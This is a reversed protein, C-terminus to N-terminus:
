FVSFRDGKFFVGQVSFCVWRKSFAVKEQFLLCDKQFFCGKYFIPFINSFVSFCFKEPLFVKFLFGHFFSSFVKKCNLLFRSSVNRFLFLEKPLFVVGTSFYHFHCHCM